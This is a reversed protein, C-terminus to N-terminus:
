VCLLESILNRIVCFGYLVVLVSQVLLSGPPLEHVALRHMCIQNQGFKEQVLVCGLCEWNWYGGEYFCSKVPEYIASNM